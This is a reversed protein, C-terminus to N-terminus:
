VRATSASDAQELYAMRASQAAELLDAKTYSKGTGTVFVFDDAFVRHMAAGHNQKV